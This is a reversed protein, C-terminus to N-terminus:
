ILNKGSPSLLSVIEQLRKRLTQVSISSSLTQTTTIVLSRSPEREDQVIAVLDQVPIEKQNGIHLFM